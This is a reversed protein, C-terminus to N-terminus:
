SRQWTGSKGGLKKDLQFPGMTASPDIAKIMDYVTLAAIHVATLAEMEVGTEAKTSAATTITFKNQNSLFKVEVDLKALCISHCYPILNATQKAAQVAAIRAVRCVEDIQAASVHQSLTLSPSVAGSCIALRQTAAKGAIDVMGSTGDKDVHSLDGM